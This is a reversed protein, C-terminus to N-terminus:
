VFLRRLTGRTRVAFTFARPFWERLFVRNRWVFATLHYPYIWLKRWLPITRSLILRRVIAWVYKSHAHPDRYQKGIPEDAYREAAAKRYLTKHHLIDAISYIHTTLALECMFVRDQAKCAPFPQRLLDNLLKTRFVGCFWHIPRESSMMDFVEPFSKRTIDLNNKYLVEDRVVGDQYVRRVSGIAVDYDPHRDLINKLKEVFEPHWWDDDAGLVFYEGRAEHIVFEINPVQTLNHTQRFYRVRRDRAAYERCIRETDDTSANDSIVLELNQYTQNLLSDLAPRM